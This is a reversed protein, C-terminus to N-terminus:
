RNFGDDPRQRSGALYPASIRARKSSSTSIYSNSYEDNAGELERSGPVLRGQADGGVGPASSSTSAQTIEVNSRNPLPAPPAALQNRNNQRALRPDRTATNAAQLQPQAPQPAFARSISGPVQAGLSPSPTSSPTALGSRTAGETNSSTLTRMPALVQASVMPTTGHKRAMTSSSSPRQNQTSQSQSASGASGVFNMLNECDAHWENDVPLAVPITPEAVVKKTFKPYKPKGSTTAVNSATRAGDTNGVVNSSSSSGVAPMSANAAKNKMKLAAKADRLPQLRDHGSSSSSAVVNSSANTFKVSEDFLSAAAPVHQLNPHTAAHPVTSRLRGPLPLPIPGSTSDVNGTAPATSIPPTPAAAVQPVPASALTSVSAVSAARSSISGMRASQPPRVTPICVQQDVRTASLSSTGVQASASTTRKAPSGKKVSTKAKSTSATRGELSLRSAPAKPKASELAPTRAESKQNAAARKKVPVPAVYDEDESEEKEAPEERKRKGGSKKSGSPAPAPPQSHSQKARGGANEVQHFLAESAVPEGPQGTRLKPKLKPVQKQVFSMIQKFTASDFKRSSGKQNERMHAIADSLQTDTFQKRYLYVLYGSMVFELPSLDKELPKGLVPDQIIRCFIDIVKFATDQLVRVDDGRQSLFTELRATSPEAKKTETGHIMLYVIQSLARFDRGRAKGWDLFSEFGDKSDIRRSLARVLDAYPGNIAPLRDAPGLPVGMQVRQFIDREQEATIGIFEACPIQINKFNNSMATSILKRKAGPPNMYYLRENTIPDKYPIEGKIFKWVSTLRQKGDICVRSESGDARQHVSFVVPAMFFNWVLTELLFTQKTDNWVVGRQYEVNLDLLGQAIWDFISITSYTILRYPKLKEMETKLGGRAKSKQTAHQTSPRTPKARANAISTSSTPQPLPQTPLIPQPLPLPPLADDEDESDSLDTLEGDSFTVWTTQNAPM